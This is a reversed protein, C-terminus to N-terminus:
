TRGHRRYWDKFTKHHFSPLLADHHVEAIREMLWRLPGLQGAWNSFPATESGIKMLWEPNDLLRKALGAGSEHAAHPAGYQM